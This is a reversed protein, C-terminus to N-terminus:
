LTFTEHVSIPQCPIFCHGLDNSSKSDLQTTYIKSLIYESLELITQYRLNRCIFLSLQNIDKEKKKKVLILIDLGQELYIKFVRKTHSTTINYMYVQLTTVLTILNSEWTFPSRSYYM